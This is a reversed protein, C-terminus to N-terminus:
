CIKWMTAPKLVNQFTKWVCIWVYFRGQGKKCGRRWEGCWAAVGVGCKGKGPNVPIIPYPIQQPLCPIPITLSSLSPSDLKQGFV